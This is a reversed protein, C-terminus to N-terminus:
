VAANCAYLIGHSIRDTECILVASQCFHGIRVAPFHRKSIIIGAIQQCNRIERTSNIQCISIIHQSPYRFLKRYASASTRRIIILFASHGTKSIFESIDRLISIILGSMDNINCEVSRIDMITIIFLSLQCFLRISKAIQGSHLIIIISAHIMHNMRIACLFASNIIVLVLGCSNDATVARYIQVLIIRMVVQNFHLILPPILVRISIIFIVVQDGKGVPAAIDPSISVIVIIMQFLCRVRVSIDTEIRM